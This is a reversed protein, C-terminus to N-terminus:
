CPERLLNLVDSVVNMNAGSRVEVSIAGFHIFVSTEDPANIVPSDLQIPLWSTAPDVNEPSGNEDEIKHIWYYMQHVKLNHERCWAAVNLGSEKWAEYRSLWEIRKDHQTM